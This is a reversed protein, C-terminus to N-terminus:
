KTHKGGKASVYMHQAQLHQHITLVQVQTGEHSCPGHVRLWGGVCEAAHHHVQVLHTHTHPNTHTHITHISPNTQAEAPTSHHSNHKLCDMQLRIITHLQM